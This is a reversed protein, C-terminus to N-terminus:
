EIPMFDRTVSGGPNTCSQRLFNLQISVAFSLWTPTNAAGTDVVLKHICYLQM